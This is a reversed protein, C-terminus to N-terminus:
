TRSFASTAEVVQLAANSLSSQFQELCRRGENVEAFGRRIFACRERGYETTRGAMRYNAWYELLVAWVACAHLFAHLSLPNGTWPSSVTADALAVPDLILPSELEACDVATHTAEHLLSEALVHPGAAVAPNVIVTRGIAVGSSAGWSEAARASDIRLVVNSTLGVFITHNIPSTEDLIDVAANLLEVAQQTEGCDPIRPNKLGASPRGVAPPLSLDIPIGCALEPGTLHGERLRLPWFPNPPEDGLWVNGLASWGGRHAIAGGSDLAAESELLSILSEADGGLRLIECLAPSRLLRDVADESLRELQRLCTERAKPDPLTAIRYHLLRALHVFRRERLAHVLSSASIDTALVESVICVLIGEGNTCSRIRTM